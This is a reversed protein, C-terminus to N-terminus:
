KATAELMEAERAHIYEVCAEESVFRRRGVKYSRLRGENIENYTTQRSKWGLRETARDISHAIPQM